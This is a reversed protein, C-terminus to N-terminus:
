MKSAVLVRCIWCSNGSQLHSVTQDPVNIVKECPSAAFMLDLCNESNPEWVKLNSTMGVDCDTMDLEINSEM